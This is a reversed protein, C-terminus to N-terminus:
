VCHLSLINNLNQSIVPFTSPPTVHTSVYKLKLTKDKLKRNLIDCINKILEVYIGNFKVNLM